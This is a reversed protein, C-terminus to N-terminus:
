VDEIRVTPRIGSTPGYAAALDYYGDSEAVVGLHDKSWSFLWSRKGLQTQGAKNAFSWTHTDVPPLGRSLHALQLACYEDETPSLQNMVSVPSSLDRVNPLESVARLSRRANPGHKGDRSMNTLAPEDGGSMIVVDWRRTISNDPLKPNYNEAYYADGSRQDDLLEHGKL